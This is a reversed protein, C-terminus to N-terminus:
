VLWHSRGPRNEYPRVNDSKYRAAEFSRITELPREMRPRCPKEHKDTPYASSDYLRAWTPVILILQKRYNANIDLRYCAKSVLIMGM